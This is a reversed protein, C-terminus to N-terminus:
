AFKVASVPALAPVLEANSPSITRLVALPLPILQLAVYCPLLLLPRRISADLPPAFKARPTFLWYAVGIVGVGLLSFNLWDWRGEQHFITYALALSLLVVFLIPARM